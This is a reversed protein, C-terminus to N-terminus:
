TAAISRDPMPSLSQRAGIAILGGVGHRQERVLHQSHHFVRAHEGRRLGGTITAWEKPPKTAMFAAASRYPSLSVPMTIM